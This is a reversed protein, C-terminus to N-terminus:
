HLRHRNLRREMWQVFMSGTVTMTLYFFSVVTYTELYKFTSGSTKRAIQTIENTGLITVLSTDKIMSIFNNGLPPLINRVAQPVVVHRLVQVNSMGLSKAAERQGIEISQIGARFVESLYAGYILALGAIATGADRGRWVLDPMDPNNTITRLLPVLSNNLVDRMQPVIIFGAILLFVLSPIGRMFEVYFTFVNYIVLHGYRSLVQRRRMGIEPPTPTSSRVIGTVLGVILAILYASIALFVTLGIGQQFFASLWEGVTVIEDDPFFPMVVNRYSPDTVIVILVFVWFIVGFVLWWPTAFIVKGPLMARKRALEAVEAMEESKTKMHVSM